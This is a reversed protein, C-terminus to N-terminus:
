LEISNRVWQSFEDFDIEGSMDSDIEKYVSYSYELIQGLSPVPLKLLKCLGQIAAKLFTLLESWDITGGDDTDFSRFLGKLKLDFDGNSFVTMAVFCEYM